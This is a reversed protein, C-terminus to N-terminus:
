RFYSMVFFGMDDRHRYHFWSLLSAFGPVILKYAVLSHYSPLFLHTPARYSAVVDEENIHPHHAHTNRNGCLTIFTQQPHHHM